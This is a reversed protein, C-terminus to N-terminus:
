TSHSGYITLKIVRIADLVIRIGRAGFRAWNTRVKSCEGCIKELDASLALSSVAERIRYGSGWPICALASSYGFIDFSFGFFM